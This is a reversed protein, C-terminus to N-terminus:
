KMALKIKGFSHPNVYTINIIQLKICFNDIASQNCIKLRHGIKQLKIIRVLSNVETVVKNGCKQIKGARTTM